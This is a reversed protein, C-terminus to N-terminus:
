ECLVLWNNMHGRGIFYFVDRKDVVHMVVDDSTHPLVSVKERVCRFTDTFPLHIVHYFMLGDLTM